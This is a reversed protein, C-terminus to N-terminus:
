HRKEQRRRKCGDGPGTPAFTERRLVGSRFLSGAPASVRKQGTRTEINQCQPCEFSLLERGPGEAEIGFLLMVTGCKSCHPRKISNSHPTARQYRTM